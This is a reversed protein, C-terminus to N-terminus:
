TSNAIPWTNPGSGQEINSFAGAGFFSLTAGEAFTPAGSVLSLSGQLLFTVSADLQLNGWTTEALMNVTRPSHSTDSFRTSFFLDSM